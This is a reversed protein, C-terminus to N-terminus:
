LVQGILAEIQTPSQVGVRRDVIEGDKFLLLSPIGRIGFRDAMQRNEDVNLKGVKVRGEYKEAASEVAPAIIKCPGCWEAWFDVLAPTESHIVEAGFNEDTLHLTTTQAGINSM